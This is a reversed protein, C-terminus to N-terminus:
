PRGQVPPADLPRPLPSSADSLRAGWDVLWQGVRQLLPGIWRPLEPERYTHGQRLAADEETENLHRDLSAEAVGHVFSPNTPQFV